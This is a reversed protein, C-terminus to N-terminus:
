AHLYMGVVIGGCDSLAQDNAVPMGLMGISPIGVGEWSSAAKHPVLFASHAASLM